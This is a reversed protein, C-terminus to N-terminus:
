ESVIATEADTPTLPNGPDTAVEDVVPVVDPPVVVPTSTIAKVSETAASIEGTLSTIAALDEQSPQFGATVLAQLESIKDTLLQMAAATEAKEEAVATVLGAIAATAESLNISLAMIKEEIKILKETTIRQSREVQNLLQRIDRLREDFKGLLRQSLHKALSDIVDDFFDM